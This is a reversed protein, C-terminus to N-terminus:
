SVQPVSGCCVRVPPVYTTANDTFSSRSTCDCVVLHAPGRGLLTELLLLLLLACPLVTVYLVHNWTVEGSMTDTASSCRICQRYPSLCYSAQIYMWSTQCLFCTLLTRSIPGITWSNFVALIIHCYLKIPCLNYMACQCVEQLLKEEKARTCAALIPKMIILNSRLAQMLQLLVSLIIIIVHNM